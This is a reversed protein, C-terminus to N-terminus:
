YQNMIEILNEQQNKAAKKYVDQQKANLTGLYADSLNALKQAEEENGDKLAYFINTIFFIAHCEIIRAEFDILKGDFLEADKQDLGTMYQKAEKAIKDLTPYELTKTPDVVSYADSWQKNFKEAALVVKFNPTCEEYKKKNSDSLGEYYAQADNAIREADDFKYNTIASDFEKKFQESKEQVNECSMLIMSFGIFFLYFKKM